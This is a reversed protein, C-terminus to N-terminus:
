STNLYGPLGSRRAAAFFTWKGSADIRAKARTLVCRKESDGFRLKLLDERLPVRQFFQQRLRCLV